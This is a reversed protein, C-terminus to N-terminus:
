RYLPRVVINIHLPGASYVDSRAMAELSVDAPGCDKIRSIAEFMEAGTLAGVNGSLPDPLIGHAQAQQNVSHLFRILQMEINNEMDQHSITESYILDDKHYILNNDFVEVNVPAAEGLMINGAATIRVLKKGSSHVLQNIASNYEEQSVYLVVAKDDNVGLRQRIMTNTQNMFTNLTERTKTEDMGGNITVRSLVEGVRFMVTGERVNQMVEKLITIREDLVAITQTLQKKTTELDNIEGQARSLNSYTQDYATQVVSLQKSMDDRAARAQDLDLLTIQMRQNSDEIQKEQSRLLEENAALLNNKEKMETILQQVQQGLQDKQQELEAKQMQIQYLGFLAIRVHESLVAMVGLTIAAISIGTLITVLISTHKPRLGFLMIKRKGIKSGLKDGIYAIAGGMIALISLLIWGLEMGWVVM